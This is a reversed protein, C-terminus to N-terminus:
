AKRFNLNGDDVVTLNMDVGNETAIRISPQMKNVNLCPVYLVVCGVSMDHQAVTNRAVRIPMTVWAAASSM